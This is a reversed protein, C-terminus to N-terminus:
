NDVGLLLGVGLGVGIWIGMPATNRMDAFVGRIRDSIPLEEEYDYEEEAVAEEVVAEEVVEGEELVEGEGENQRSVRYLRLYDTGSIYIGDLGRRDMRLDFVATRLMQRHYDVYRSGAYDVNINDLRVGFTTKGQEGAGGLPVNIYIMAHPKVTTEFAHTNAASLSLLLITIITSIRM